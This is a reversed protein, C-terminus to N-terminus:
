GKFEEQRSATALDRLCAQSGFAALASAEGFSSGAGRDCVHLIRMAVRPGRHQQQQQQQQQKEPHPTRPEDGFRLRRERTTAAPAAASSSPPPPAGSSASSSSNTNARSPPSSDNTPPTSAAPTVAIAPPPTKTAMRMASHGPTMVPAPLDGGPPGILAAEAEATWPLLSYKKGNPKPVEIFKVGKLLRCTGERVVYVFGPIDGETLLVTNPHFDKIQATEALLKVGAASM